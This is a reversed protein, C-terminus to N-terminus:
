YTNSFMQMDLKLTLEGSEVQHLILKKTIPGKTNQTEHYIDMIKLEARGLFEAFDILIIQIFQKVM